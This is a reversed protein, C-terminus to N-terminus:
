MRMKMLPGSAYKRTMNATRLSHVRGQRERFWPQDVTGARWVEEGRGQYGRDGCLKGRDRSAEFADSTLTLRGVECERSSCSPFERVAKDCVSVRVACEVDRVSDTGCTLAANM